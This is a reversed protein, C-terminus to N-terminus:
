FNVVLGTSIAHFKPGFSTDLVNCPSYKVYVGLFNKVSAVGYIDTTFSNVHVGRTHEKHKEGDISYRTKLNGHGNFNFLVGAAFKFKKTSIYHVLLPVQYSLTHLRSFNVEAGEPYATLVVNNGVKDFRTTGTMRYNKWNFWLGTSFSWHKGGNSYRLEAAHLTIEVSKGFNTELNSPGGLTSILGMSITPVISFQISQKPERSSTTFPFKFDFDSNSERSVNVGKEDMEMTKSFHYDPDNRKGFVEVSMKKNGSVVLVSDANNIITTDPLEQAFADILARLMGVGTDSTASGGLGVIIRKAGKRVADAILQGTGYSTAVMPNREEESLLTLGSAQAIEIVAEQDRLLYKATIFRMMPDRVTVEQITGGIAAQFADIFGEGGDSVPIQVIDADPFVHRVGDAAAQNADTSSLCGKMSDIVIVIKVRRLFIAAFVVNKYKEPKM